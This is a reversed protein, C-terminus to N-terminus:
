RAACPGEPRVIGTWIRRGHVRNPGGHRRWAHEVAGSVEDLGQGECAVERFVDGAGDQACYRTTEADARGRVNYSAVPHEGPREAASACSQSSSPAPSSATHPPPRRSLFHRLFIGAPMGVFEYQPHRITLVGGRDIYKTSHSVNIAMEQTSACSSTKRTCPVHRPTHLATTHYVCGNPACQAVLTLMRKLAEFCPWSSM